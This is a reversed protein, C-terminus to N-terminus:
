IILTSDIPDIPDDHSDHQMQRRRHCSKVTSWVMSKVTKGHRIM